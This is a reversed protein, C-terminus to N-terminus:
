RKRARASLLEVVERLTRQLKPSASDYIEMYRPREILIPEGIEQM